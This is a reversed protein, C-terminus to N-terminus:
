YVSDVVHRSNRRSGSGRGRVTGMVRFVEGITINVEVVTHVSETSSFIHGIVSGSKGLYYEEIVEKL